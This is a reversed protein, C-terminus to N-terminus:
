LLSLHRECPAKGVSEAKEVPSKVKTVRVTESLGELTKPREKWCTEKIIVSGKVEKKKRRGPSLSCSSQYIFAVLNVNWMKEPHVTHLLFFTGNM